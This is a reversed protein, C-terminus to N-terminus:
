NRAAGAVELRVDARRLAAQARELELEEPTRVHETGETTTAAGADGGSRGTAASLEDVRTAAAARAREARAVDIQAAAEAVGALLTVLTDAGGDATSTRGVQMFGGHLAFRETEGDDREVTVEGPVIDTVLPTHGDLVTLEGDSSRLSVSRARGELLMAEPTVLELAFLGDAM